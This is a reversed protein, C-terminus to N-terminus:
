PLSDADLLPAGRLNGSRDGEGLGPDPQSRDEHLSLSNSAVDRPASAEMRFIGSWSHLCITPV